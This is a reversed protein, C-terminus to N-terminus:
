ENKKQWGPPVPHHPTHDVPQRLWPHWDVSDSVADGKGIVKGKPNTRGFEGGPGSAHGWWNMAADVASDQTWSEVGYIGNAEFNNYNIIIGFGEQGGGIKVGTYGNDIFVNDAISISSVDPEGTFGYNPIEIGHFISENIENEEVTTGASHNRIQIGNYCGSIENKVIMSPAFAQIGEYTTDYIMNEQVIADADANLRIGLGCNSIDNNSVTNSGFLDVGSGCETAANNTVAANTAGARVNMAAFTISSIENNEVVANDAEVWIGDHLCNSV